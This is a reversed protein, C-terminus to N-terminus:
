SAMVKDWLLGLGNETLCERIVEALKKNRILSNKTRKLENAHEKLLGDCYKIIQTSIDSNESPLPKPINQNKIQNFYIKESYIKALKESAPIYSESPDILELAKLFHKKYSPNIMKEEILIHPKVVRITIELIGREDALYAKISSCHGRVKESEDFTELTTNLRKNVLSLSEEVLNNAKGFVSFLNNFTSKRKM